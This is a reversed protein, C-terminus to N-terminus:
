IGFRLVIELIKDTIENIKTNLETSILILGAGGIPIAIRYIKEYDINRM